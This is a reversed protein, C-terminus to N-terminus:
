REQPPRQNYEEAARRGLITAGALLPSDIEAAVVGGPSMGTTAPAPQPLLRDVLALTQATPGPLAGSVRAALTATFPFICEAEGRRAARVIIRAARDAATAVPYPASAGLAFWRYEAEQDGGFEAHLHSGTRMLGPVVTTVTIGTGNLEAGLGTSFGVAAFKACDYPLLHPMALKGGISTINVIRGAGRARMGPLIALTPNLTGWFNAAMVRAFDDHTLNAVPAVVIIGANNVLIDIQGYHRTVADIMTEVQARDAIDCPVALVPAGRLVLDAKALELETEDRACIALRCGQAALERSIALGLGRSGGTVLAVQGRLDAEPPRELAARAVGFGMAM